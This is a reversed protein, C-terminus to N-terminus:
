LAKKRLSKQNELQQQGQARGQMEIPGITYISGSVLHGMGARWRVATQNKQALAM